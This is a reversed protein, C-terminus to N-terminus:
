QRRRRKATEPAPSAPASPPVTKTVGPAPPIWARLSSPRFADPLLEGLTVIRPALSFDSIFLRIPFADDAFEALTQRCTGCPTGIVPGPTVVALAIPNREGKAVMQVIVSREACISLGYSANETNCGSLIQGSSLLLAAGVPYKSYPAYARHQVSLAAKELENWDISHTNLNM